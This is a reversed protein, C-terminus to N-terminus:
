RAVEEDIISDVFLSPAQLSYGENLREIYPLNNTIFLNSTAKFRSIVGQAKAIAANPDFANLDPSSVPSGIGVLWNAKAQGTDRPTELVLRRDINIALKQVEEEAFFYLDKKISLDKFFSM